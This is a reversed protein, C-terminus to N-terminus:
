FASKIKLKQIQGTPLTARQSQNQSASSQALLLVHIVLLNRWELTDLPPKGVYKTLSEIKLETQSNPLPFDSVVFDCVVRLRLALSIEPIENDTTFNFTFGCVM